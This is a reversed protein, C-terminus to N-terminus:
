QTVGEGMGPIGNQRAVERPDIGENRCAISWRLLWGLCAAGTIILLVCFALM